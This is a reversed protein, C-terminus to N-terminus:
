LLLDRVLDAEEEAGMTTSQLGLLLNELAADNKRALQLLGIIDAVKIKFRLNVPKSLGSTGDYTGTLSITIEESPKM